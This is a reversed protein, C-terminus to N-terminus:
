FTTGVSFEFDTRKEKRGIPWPLPKPRPNVGYIFRLPAQFIPLFVRLEAGFTYRMLSLDWGQEEHWTNGADAFLIFKVPGGIKIQYELNLQMYRDGGEISGQETLFFTEDRRMPFIRWSPLGRLSREGGMRYRDYYPIESDNFPFVMGGEWNVAFITTRNLPHFYSFGLEPRFYEFDGGLPGGAYRLRAHYSLGQNPDFPDDRADYMFVPTFASTVGSFEERFVDPFPMDPYPPPLPRRRPIRPGEDRLVQRQSIARAWADEYTYITTFRTFFGYARGWILSGGKAKREILYYDQRTNFLSGGLLMNRDLFYPDSFNISYATALRGSTAAVGFSEGRGLLNRTNFMFTGFMKDLESYGAGFQIDTRGVEQGRITVNVVQKEPDVDLDLPDETLKFYGLQNVSFMSREFAKMNMWEGEFLRFERRLVKDQTKTNGVFELRGLRYRDGEYVNVVVDVTDPRDPNELLVQSTYAYIYGRAQYLDRVVENGQEVRSYNYIRGFELDYAQLLQEETFVTAGTIKLSGIRYRAGEELPITIRHIFRRERQTRGWPRRAVLEVKPDGVVVDKYGRDMYFKKLNESDEGWDERSWITKKGWPRTLSRVKTKKLARRLRRDPFVENGEFNIEGIRVKVGEDIDFVVRRQGTSVEEVRSEVVASAFGEKTYGELIATELRRLDPLRLPINRRVSLGADEIKERVSSDSLKKNGSFVWETVRPRERVTVILKVAGPELEEFEVLLSEVLGSDWFRRFNRSVVEPEWPDGASVGLYYEVTEATITIGGVVEVERVIATEAASSGAALLVLASYIFARM